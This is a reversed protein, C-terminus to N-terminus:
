KILQNNKLLTNIDVKLKDYGDYVNSLVNLSLNATLPDQNLNALNQYINKETTLLEIEKKDINLAARPVTLSYLDKITSNYVDVLKLFDSSQINVDSSIINSPLNKGNSLIITNFSTFYNVLAEKSNDESIKIDSDKIAPVLSNPDFNKQAETLLDNTLEEPKPVNVYNKGSVTISGNPNAVVFENAIKKAIVESLNVTSSSSAPAVVMETGVPNNNIIDLNSNQAQPAPAKSNSIIFYAGGLGLGLFLVIIIIKLKSM